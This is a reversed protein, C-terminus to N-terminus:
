VLTKWKHKGIKKLKLTKSCIPWAYKASPGGKAKVEKVCRELKAPSM